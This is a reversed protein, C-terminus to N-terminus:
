LEILQKPIIFEYNSNKESAKRYGMLLAAKKLNMYVGSKLFFQM